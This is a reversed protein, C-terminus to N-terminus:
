TINNNLYNTNFYSRSDKDMISPKRPDGHGFRFRDHYPHSHTHTVSLKPTVKLLNDLEKLGGSESIPSKSTTLIDKNLDAGTLLSFEVETNNVLFKFLEDGKGNTIEFKEYKVSIEKGESNRTLSVNTQPAYEYDLDNNAEKKNLVGKEFTKTKGTLESTLQDTKDDNVETLTISGLKNIKCHDDTKDGKKDNLYVPNNDMSYYPSQWPMGTAKPDISLDYTLKFAGM